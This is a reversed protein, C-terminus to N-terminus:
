SWWSSIWAAPVVAGDASRGQELVLQGLKVMDRPRLYLGAGGNPIGRNDIEWDRSTIGLPRLLYRDAFVSGAAICSRYAEPWAIDCRRM